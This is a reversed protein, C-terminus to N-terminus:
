SREITTDITYDVGERVPATMGRKALADKLSCSGCWPIRVPGPKGLPGRKWVVVCTAPQNCYRCTKADMALIADWASQIKDDGASNLGLRIRERIWARITNPTAPDRQLLVFLIEDDAARNFCSNPDALEDRKKV